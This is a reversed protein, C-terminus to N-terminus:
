AGSFWRNRSRLSSSSREPSSRARTAAPLGQSDADVGEDAEVLGWYWYRKTADIMPMTGTTTSNANM